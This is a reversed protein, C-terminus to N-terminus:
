NSYYCKDSYTGTGTTDAFATGSPLYCSTIVTSGKASTASNNSTATKCSTCGSTASTPNGYYGVACSYTTRSEECSYRFDGDVCTYSTCTEYGNSTTCKYPCPNDATACTQIEVTCYCVTGPCGDRAECTKKTGTPCSDVSICGTIQADGILASAGRIWLISTLVAMFFIRM